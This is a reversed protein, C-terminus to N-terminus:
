HSTDHRDASGEDLNGKMQHTSDVPSVHSHEDGHYGCGKALLALLTLIILATLIIPFFPRKPHTHLEHHAM